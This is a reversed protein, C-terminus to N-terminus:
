FNRKLNMKKSLGDMFYELFSEFDGTFHYIPLSKHFHFYSAAVDKPNRAVYIVKAGAEIVNQPM